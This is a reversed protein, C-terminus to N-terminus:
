AEIIRRELSMSGSISKGIQHSIMDEYQRTIQLMQMNLQKRQETIANQRENRGIVTKGKIVRTNMPTLVEDKVNENQETLDSLAQRYKSLFNRDLAMAQEAIYGLETGHLEPKLVGQEQNITSSYRADTGTITPFILNRRYVGLADKIGDNRDKMLLYNTDSIGKASEYDKFFVHAPGSSRALNDIYRDKVIRDLGGSDDLGPQGYARYMDDTIQYLTQGTSSFVSGILNAIGASTLGDPKQMDPDLGSIQQPRVLAPEGTIRTMGPDIGLSGLLASGAPIATPDFPNNQKLANWVSTDWDKGLAEKDERSVDGELWKDMAELFHPNWQGNSAGSIHDIVPFTLATFMRMIPDLPLEVGHFSTLSTLKQLPTKDSHKKMAEPDTAIAGYHLAAAGFLTTFINTLANVKDNKFIKGLQYLSQASLNSYMVSGFLKNWADSGGHKAADGSLNRLQSGLKDMDTIRNKNTALAQYRFGNHMAEMISQYTSAIQTSRARAFSNKGQKLLSSFTTINGNMAEDAIDRDLQSLASRNFAPAIDELGAAVKSPDPSSHLTHSAAGIRDLEAKISNEYSSALIDSLADARSGLMTRLVDNDKYMRAAVNTAIKGRMDDWLYRVAGTYGGLVVTPDPLNLGTIENIIGAPAMGKPRMLMGMVTDYPVSKLVAFGNALTAIPGTTLNQYFHRMAELSQVSARPSFLLSKNLAPDSVRYNIVQGNVFVQHVNEQKYPKQGIPLQKVIPKGKADLPSNAALDKLLGSRLDNQEARQVVESWSGFLSHFPNSAGTTGQVGGFEDTSRSAGLADNATSQHREQSMAKVDPELNRNLEIYNPRDKLMQNYQERSILGRSLEFRLKDKFSQQISEFFKNLKPNSKVANVAKELDTPTLPNGERDLNAAALTKTRKFDDLASAKILADSVQIQEEPSLEDAYAEAIPALRVTRRNSGVVRGTIFQDRLKGGIATNNILDLKHNYKAANSPALVQEIVNRIPKHADLIKTVESDVASLNSKVFKKGTIRDLIEFSPQQLAKVGMARLAHVAGVSTVLAGVEIASREWGALKNDEEQQDLHGGLESDFTSKDVSTGEQSLQAEEQQPTPLLEREFAIKDDKAHDGIGQYGPQASPNIAHIAEVLGTGVTTAAATGKIGTQRLPLAMETAGRALARAGRVLYGSGEAAKAVLTSKPAPVLFSGLIRLATEGTDQPDTIGLTKNTRVSALRSRRLAEATFSGPRPTNGTLTQIVGALAGPQDVIAPRYGLGGLAVGSRRDQETASNAVTTEVAGAALEKARRWVGALGGQPGNFTWFSSAM